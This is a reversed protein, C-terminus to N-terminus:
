TQALLSNQVSVMHEDIISHSRDMAQARQPWRGCAVVTPVVKPRRYNGGLVSHTTAFTRMASRVPGALPFLQAAANEVRRTVADVPRFLGAFLIAVADGGGLWRSLPVGSLYPAGYAPDALAQVLYQQRRLCCPLPM